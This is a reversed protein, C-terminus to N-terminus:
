LSADIRISNLSILIGIQHRERWFISIIWKSKLPQTSVATFLLWWYILLLSSFGPFDSLPLSSCSFLNITFPPWSFDAFLLSYIFWPSYSVKSIHILQISCHLQTCSSQVRNALPIRRLRDIERGGVAFRHWKESSKRWHRIWSSTAIDFDLGIVWWFEGFPKIAYMSYAVFSDLAGSSTARQSRV